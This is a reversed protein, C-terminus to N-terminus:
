SGMFLLFVVTYTCPKTETEGALKTIAARDFSSPPDGTCGALPPLNQCYMELAEM